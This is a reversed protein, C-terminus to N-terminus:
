EAAAEPAEPGDSVISALISEISDVVSVVNDGGGSPAAADTNLGSIGAVIDRAAAERSLKDAEMRTHYIKAAEEANDFVAQMDKKMDGPNLELNKTSLAVRGNLKDHEIVMVSCQQGITFMQELNEIRDYSIQSIHLLGATGGELELFAGYNRLGTITGKIVTGKTLEVQSEALARRQSLVLKGEEAVVDLFKVNIMTGILSEDPMGLYHSGPLFAKLGFAACVAGGKNVETVKVEFIEDAEKVKMIDAWAQILQASRLSFVPMGRLTGVVEATIEQGIEVVESVHKLPLLAAEKIPLYASMKGTIQLLAGNDDMEVVTGTITDGKKPPSSAEEDADFFLSTMDDEVDVM